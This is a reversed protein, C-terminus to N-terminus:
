MRRHIECALPPLPYCVFTMRLRPHPFRAILIMDLRSGQCLERPM